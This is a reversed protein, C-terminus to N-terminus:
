QANHNQGPDSVNHNHGPDSINHSHSVVNANASGGTANINYSSGQGVIFRNRLDPTGNPLGNCIAWGSPATSGTFMVIMGSTFAQSATIYGAGNTLQNNNTVNTAGTAIGDPKDHHAASMMGADSSTAEGITVNSGTSSTITRTTSTASTGLNTAVNVQAGAAIGDLKDHHATTMLGAASSTAQTLDVNNGTSSLITNTTTTTTRSLNTAVNVEAGSAIGDLKTGDAAVDRGDVTGGVTLNGSIDAVGDVDLTDCQVEGTVDVGDSKTTLKTSGADFWPSKM